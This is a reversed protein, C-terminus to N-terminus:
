KINPREQYFRFTKFNNNQIPKKEKISINHSLNLNKNDNSDTIFKKSSYISNKPSKPKIKSNNIKIISNNININNNNKNQIIRNDRNSFPYNQKQFDIEMESNEYNNHLNYSMNNFIINSDNNNIIQNINEDNKIEKENNNNGLLLEPYLFNLSYYEIVQRPIEDLVEEALKKEDGEFKDFPVFQVLDRQRKIGKRSILPIEDGDLQEMKSFDMNGIGVIIVSLPLFSGEVLADITDEMDDIIGDTLIMLVHYNFLDKENEIESIIKNIIPSFNTPHYFDIKDLCKLYEIIINDVFQINPDEKFNINFCMSAEKEGKIIAGFGYVPFKQDYDYNAMINACSLIAREYPNRKETSKRYHLCIEDNPHGNSATFDIGIDLAIRVGKNIYDLFTIEETLSSYNYIILKDNLTLQKSFIIKDKSKPHLIEELGKCGGLNQNKNNFFNISIDSYVINIPIQVLNFKGDDTFAESEYLITNNNEIKFYLKYKENVFYKKEKSNQIEINNSKPYIELGFHFTLYQIKKKIKQAKIELKEDLKDINFIKTSNENGIIEGITIDFNFCINENIILELKLKQEKSFKYDYNNKLLNINNSNSCIIKDSIISDNFYDDLSLVKLFYTNNIIGNILNFELQLIENQSNKQKNNSNKLGNLNNEFYKIAKKSKIDFKSM